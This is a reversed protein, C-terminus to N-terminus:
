PARGDSPMILFLFHSRCVPLLAFFVAISLVQKQALSILVTSFYPCNAVRYVRFVLIGIVGHVVEREREIASYVVSYVVISLGM